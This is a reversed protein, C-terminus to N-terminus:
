RFLNLLNKQLYYAKFTAIVEQDMPQLFPMTNPPLLIVKIHKSLESVQFELNMRRAADFIQQHKKERRNVRCEYVVNKM